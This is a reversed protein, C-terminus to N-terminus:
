SDLERWTPIQYPSSHIYLTLELVCPSFLFNRDDAARRNSHVTPKHQTSRSAAILAITTTDGKLQSRPHSLVGPLCKPQSKPASLQPVPALELQVSPFWDAALLLEPM